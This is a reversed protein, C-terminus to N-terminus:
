SMRGIFPLAAFGTSACKETRQARCPASAMLSNALERADAEQREAALATAIGHLLHRLPPLAGKRDSDMPM